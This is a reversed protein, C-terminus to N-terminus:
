RQFHPSPQPSTFAEAKDAPHAPLRVRLLAEEGEGGGEGGGVRTMWAPTRPSRHRSAALACTLSACRSLSPSPPTAPTARRCCGLRGGVQTRVERCRSCEAQAGPVAWRAVGRAWRGAPVRAAAALDCLAQVPPRRAQPLKHPLWHGAPSPNLNTNCLLRAPLHAAAYCRLLCPIKCPTPLPQPPINHRVANPFIGAPPIRSWAGRAALGDRAVIGSASYIESLNFQGVECLPLAVTANPTVLEVQPCCAAPM